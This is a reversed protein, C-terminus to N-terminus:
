IQVSRVKNSAIRPIPQASGLFEGQMFQCGANILWQRQRATEVGEAVAEMGLRRVLGIITSVIIRNAEREALGAILGQDLKVRTFPFDTLCDLSAYGTGLDDLAIGVGLGRIAQLVSLAVSRDLMVSETVEIELRSPSLGSESLAHELTKVLGARNLQVVSVNVSVSRGDMYSAADACARRIIWEGLKVILGTKEAQDIFVDPMLLGHEPHHWRILAEYGVITRDALCQPQYYLEFEQREIGGEIDWDHCSNCASPMTMGCEFFHYNCRGTNKSTYLALDANEMLVRAEDGYLPACVIGISVGVNLENGGYYFPSSIEKLIQEALLRGERVQSRRVPQIIAFEDGGLRAVVDGTGLLVTLRSSVNALLEDGAAHGFTDNVTKFRDLDLLMLNFHAGKSRLKAIATDLALSFFTRNPLGTLSDHHAMYEMKQATEKVQQLYEREVVAQRLKEIAAALRGIEDNRELFPTVNSTDNQAIRSLAQILVPVSYFFRKVPLVIILATLILIAFLALLSNRLLTNHIKYLDQKKGISSVIAGLMHGSPTLVPLISAFYVQRDIRIFGSLANELAQPAMAKGEETELMSGGGVGGANTISIFGEQETYRFLWVENRTQTAALALVDAPNFGTELIYEDDGLFRNTRIDIIHGLENVNVTISTYISRIIYSTIHANMQSQRQWQEQSSKDVIM